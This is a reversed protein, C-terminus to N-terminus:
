DQKGLPPLDIFGEGRQAVPRLRFGLLVLRLFLVELFDPPPSWEKPFALRFDHDRELGGAYARLGNGKRL